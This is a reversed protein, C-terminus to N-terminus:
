RAWRNAPAVTPAGCLPVCFNGAGCCGLTFCAFGGGCQPSSTCAVGTCIPAVCALPGEITPVCACSGGGCTFTFCTDQTPCVAGSPGQASVTVSGVILPAVYVGSGIALARKILARRDLRSDSAAARLPDDRDDM